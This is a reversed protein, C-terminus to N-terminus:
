GQDTDKNAINGTALYLDPITFILILQSSGAGLM